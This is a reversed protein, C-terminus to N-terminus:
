EGIVMIADILTLVQGRTPPLRKVGLFKNLGCGRYETGLSILLRIMGILDPHRAVSLEYRTRPYRKVHTLHRLIKRDGTLNLDMGTSVLYKVVDKRDNFVAYWLARNNDATADAGVSILYKVIDM